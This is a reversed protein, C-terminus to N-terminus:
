NFSSIRTEEEAISKLIEDCKKISVEGYV